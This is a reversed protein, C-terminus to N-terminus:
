DGARRATRGPGADTHDHGHDDKGRAHPNGGSDIEGLRDVLAEIILPHHKLYDAALFEIEPHRAAAEAMADYVRKVLIGTFLFCPFVIIRAFGLKAASALATPVNPATAGSYGAAASGFSLEEGLTRAFQAVHANVHPENTGRGIVLLLSDGRAVQRAGKAEAAAIREAAAGILKPDPALERGFEVTVDAHSAAFHNLERPIDTKVHRAAFLIVPLALIRRAGGDYLRQLGDRITPTAFELYGGCVPLPALRAAAADRFAEFEAVGQADRSGHGCLLVAVPDPPATM